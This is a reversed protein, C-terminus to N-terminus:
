KDTWIIKGNRNIYIWKGNQEMHFLGYGISFAEQFIPKIVEKGSQDIIGYDNYEGMGIVALGNHFPHAHNFQPQIIFNGTKDIYGYKNDKKVAALGESFYTADDYQISIVLNGKEDIYGSKEGISVTAYGESFDSIYDYKPRIVYDGKKNILGTKHHYTIKALGNKFRGVMDFNQPKIVYNGKKDIYAFKSANPRGLNRMDDCFCVYALGESFQDAYDFQPEIVYKGTTDVYGWKNDENPIPCLGDSFGTFIAYTSNFLPTIPEGSKNIYCFKGDMAVLAYNNHFDYAIEFQPEIIFNGARDIYGYKGNNYDGIRVCSIDEDFTPSVKDFFPNIVIQGNSDMFGYKDGVKISFLIEKDSKQITTISDNGATEINNTINYSSLSIETLSVILLFIITKKIKM